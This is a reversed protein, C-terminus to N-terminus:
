HRTVPVDQTYVRGNSDEAKVVLVIDSMEYSIEEDFNYVGDIDVIIKSGMQTEFVPEREGETRVDLHEWNDGNIFDMTDLLTEDVYVEGILSVIELNKTYDEFISNRQVNKYALLNFHFNQIEKEANASSRHVHSDFVILNNITSKVYLQDVDDSRKSEASEGVVSFEYDKNSDLRLTDTYVMSEEYGEMELTEQDNNEDKIVLYLKEEKILENFEISINVDVKEEDLYYEVIRIDHSRIWMKEKNFENLTNQVSNNIGSIRSEIHSYNNNINLIMNELNNIKSMMNLNFFVTAALLIVLIITVSRNNM